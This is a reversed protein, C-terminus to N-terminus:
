GPGVGCFRAYDIYGPFAVGPACVPCNPDPKLRMERFRMSLADVHLLRGSLPEGLDLLLKIAETAQIMGVLGPLVGLVGADACSPAFE